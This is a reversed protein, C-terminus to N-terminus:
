FIMEEASSQCNWKSEKVRLWWVLSNRASTFNSVSVNWHSSYTPTPPPTNKTIQWNFLFLIVIYPMHAIQVHFYSRGGARSCKIEFVDSTNRMWQSLLLVLFLFRKVCVYSKSLSLDRREYFVRLRIEKRRRGRNESLCCAYKYRRRRLVM